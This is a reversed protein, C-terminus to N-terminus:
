VTRAQTRFSVARWADHREPARRRTVPLCGVTGGTIGGPVGGTVGGTVGGAPVSVGGEGGSSSTGATNVGPACVSPSESKGSM